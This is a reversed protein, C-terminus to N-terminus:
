QKKFCINAGDSSVDFEGKEKRKSNQVNDGRTKVSVLPKELKLPPKHGKKLVTENQFNGDKHKSYFRFM